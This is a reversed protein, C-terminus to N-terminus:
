LSSLSSSGAFCSSRTRSLPLSLRRKVSHREHIFAYCHQFCSMMSPQLTCHKIAHGLWICLEQPHVARLALLGSSALYLRWARGPRHRVRRHEFDFHVVLTDLLTKGAKDGHLGIGAEKAAIVFQGDAEEADAKTWGFTNVNDVYVGTVAAGPRLLPPPRRQQVLSEPGRPHYKTALSEVMAQCFFLSWSWGM